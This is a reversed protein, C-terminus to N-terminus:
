RWTQSPKRCFTAIFYSFLCENYLILEGNHGVFNLAGANCLHVHCCRVTKPFRVQLKLFGKIIGINFFYDNQYHLAAYCREIHCCEIHYRSLTVVVILIIAPCPSFMICHLSLM